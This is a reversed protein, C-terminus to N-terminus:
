VNYPNPDTVSNTLELIYIEKDKFNNNLINILVEKEKDRLNNPEVKGFKQLVLGDVIARISKKFKKMFYDLEELTTNEYGAEVIPLNRKLLSRLEIFKLYYYLKENLIAEINPCRFMLETQLETNYLKFIKPHEFYSKVNAKTEGFVVDCLATYRGSPSFYAIKVLDKGVTKESTNPLELSINIIGELFWKILFSIHEAVNRMKWDNYVISDSHTLQIDIDESIYKSTNQIESLVFQVAKGGKFIFNYDQDNMTNSIIGLLLLIICLATNINIFDIQQQQSKLEFEPNKKTYYAPFMREIIECTTWPNEKYGSRYSVKLPNDEFLRARIRDRLAFLDIGKNTFLVRWFKPAVGINYGINPVNIPVKLKVIPAVITPAVEEVIPAEVIPEVQPEVQPAVQPEVQPAVQPEVQPAVEEVIPVPEEKPAVEEVTPAVAEVIPAVVTVPSEAVVQVQPAVEITRMIEDFIPKNEEKLNDRSLGYRPDLLIKINDIQKNEVVYNFVNNKTNSRRSEVNINGGNEYFLEILKQKIEKNTINDMIVTPISVYDVVNDLVPKMNEDVPILTNITEQNDKFFNNLNRTFKKIDNNSKNKWNILPLLANRFQSRFERELGLDKDGGSQNRKTKNKYYKKYYKKSQRKYKKRTQNKDGYKKIHKTRM